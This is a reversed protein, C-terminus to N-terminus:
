GRKSKGYVQDALDGYFRACLQHRMELESLPSSLSSLVLVRATQFMSAGMQLRELGTKSACLKRVIHAIDPATDIM